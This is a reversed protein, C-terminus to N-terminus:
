KIIRQSTSVFSLEHLYSNKRYCHFSCDSDAKTLSLNGYFEVEFVPVTQVGVVISCYGVIRNQHSAVRTGWMKFRQLYATAFLAEAIM